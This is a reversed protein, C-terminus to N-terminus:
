HFQEGNCSQWREHWTWGGFRVKVGRVAQTCSALKRQVTRPHPPNGGVTADGKGGEVSIRLASILNSKIGGCGGIGPGM